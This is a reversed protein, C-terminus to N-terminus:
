EDEEELSDEEFVLEDDDALPPPPAAGLVTQPPAPEPFAAPLRPAAPAPAVREVGIYKGSKNRVGRMVEWHQQTASASRGGLIEGIQRWASTGVPGHEEVLQRLEAEEEASWRGGTSM